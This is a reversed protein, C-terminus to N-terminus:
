GKQAQKMEHEEIADSIQAHEIANLFDDTDLEQIESISGYGKRVLYFLQKDYDDM